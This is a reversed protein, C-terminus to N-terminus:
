KVEKETLLDIIQSYDCTGYEPHAKAAEISDFTGVFDDWGGAPYYKNFVFLAYRRM